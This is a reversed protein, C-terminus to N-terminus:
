AGRKLYTEIRGAAKILSDVHMGGSASIALEMARARRWESNDPGASGTVCPVEPEAGTAADDIVAIAQDRIQDFTLGVAGTNGNDISWSGNSAREIVIRNLIDTM